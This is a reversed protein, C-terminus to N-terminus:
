VPSPLSKIPAPLSKAAYIVHFADQDPCEELAYADMIWGQQADHQLALLAVGGPTCLWQKGSTCVSLSQPEWSDSTANLLAVREPEVILAMQFVFATM